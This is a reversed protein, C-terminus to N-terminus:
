VSYITPLTLHTYSVPTDVMSYVMRRHPELITANGYVGEGKPGRADYWTGPEIYGVTLDIDPRETRQGTDPHNRMIPSNDFLKADSAAKLVEPTYFGSAGQGPEIIKILVRGNGLKKM